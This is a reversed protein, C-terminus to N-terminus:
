NSQASELRALWASLADAVAAPAELPAMHGTDAIETLTANPSAEAIRASLKPPCIGDLAGVIVSVAGDYGALTDLRDPRNSLARAESAVRDSAEELAMDRLDPGLLAAASPKHPFFRSVLADVYAGANYLRAAELLDDRFAIEKERARLPDTSILAAGLLREPAQEIMAMAVMGGLSFGAVAFRDPAEALLQEAMQDIDPTQPPTAFSLDAADSLRPTLEAFIREDCLHGAIMLLPSTTM